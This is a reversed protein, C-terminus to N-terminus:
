ALNVFVDPRPARVMRDKYEVNVELTRVGAGKKTTAVFSGKYSESDVNYTWRTRKAGSRLAFHEKNALTVGENSGLISEIHDRVNGGGVGQQKYSIKMAM